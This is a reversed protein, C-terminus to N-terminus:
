QLQMEQPITDSDSSILEPESVKSLLSRSVNPSYSLVIGSAIEYLCRDRPFARQNAALELRDAIIRLQHPTCSIVRGVSVDGNEYIKEM